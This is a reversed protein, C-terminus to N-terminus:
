QLFADLEQTKRCKEDDLKAQIVGDETRTYKVLTPIGVLDWHTRYVCGPRKWRTLILRPV